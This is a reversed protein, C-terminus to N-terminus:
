DPCGSRVATLLSKCRTHDYLLSTFASTLEHTGFSEPTVLTTIQFGFWIESFRFLPPSNECSLEGKRKQDYGWAPLRMISSLSRNGEAQSGKNNVMTWAAPIYLAM